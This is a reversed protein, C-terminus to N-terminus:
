NSIGDRDVSNTEEDAEYLRRGSFWHLAQALHWPRKTGQYHEKNPVFNIYCVTKLFDIYIAV